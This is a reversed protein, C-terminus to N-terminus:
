VVHVEPVLTTPAASTLNLVETYADALGQFLTQVVSVVPNGFKSYQLRSPQRRNRTSRRVTVDPEIEDHSQDNDPLDITISTMTEPNEPAEELVPEPLIEEEVPQLEPTEPLNTEPLNEEPLNEEPLNEGPLNEEPLNSAQVNEPEHSAPLTKTVTFKVPPLYPERILVCNTDDPAVEVDTVASTPEAPHLRSQNAPVSQSESSSEASLFGCPLLLDRHLTRLPGDQHEPTVTYVPLEKAKKVVVYVTDEWKDSLKHKGRIRVNRVLVRDGPELVSTTVRQDFRQKNREANKAANRSAIQYSEQLRSKLNAVYESHTKHQPERVSLGFALDIPLRPSRGFMLEYPTYGTVDNRTCNYAHVLPKVHEKWKSKQKNELTGLMSLLTRNFREVPNGRPHYPTTRSKKIGTVECLEKILKSEFDPGQDTHIREPFGYHIIFNEWLCKAVTRAKQNTTPFAMAFKTFHDTLVLIDKVNSSDPELSLFDMCILELPRTTHINVMPAAKEQPTKRRVCRPCTRIKTEVDNAMKPWYFRSRVLDLTREVGLHGMDNHLSHLVQDRLAEPLVLQHSVQDEGQRRRYLVGDILELKNFERLLLPLEPLEKRLTPPSKDGSELEHIVEGISPDSRQEAMLESQSLSSIVPLGHDVEDCYSVPVADATIALSEVLTINAQNSDVENHARVLAAGCIAEVVDSPVCCSDNSNVFYHEEFNRLLDLEKESHPTDLTNEHPRRSLADADTNQKGTRYQLKFSYTSLAALWRHSTADLKASTLIYTLPNSDTIIIRLTDPNAIRYDAVQM